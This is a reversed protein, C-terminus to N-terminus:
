VLKNREDRLKRERKIKATRYCENSCYKLKRDRSVFVKGCNLCTTNNEVSKGFWYSNKCDSSCYVKLKNTTLFTTGCERCKKEEKNDVKIYKRRYFAIRCNKSCYKQTYVRLFFIVNCEKCRSFGLEKLQEITLLSLELNDM